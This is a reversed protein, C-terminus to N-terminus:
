RKSRNERGIRHGDSAAKNEANQQSTNLAGTVLGDFHPSKYSKEGAEANRKYEHFVADVKDQNVKSM